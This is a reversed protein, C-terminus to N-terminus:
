YILPFLRKTRRCYSAYADGLASALVREEVNIRYLFVITIPVMVILISLWNGLTLAFGLFALLSGTYSPHRVFRYPGSEILRHDAAIAVNVTFFRGLQIIAIWRLLGVGFVFVGIAAVFHRHPLITTALNGAVFVGAAISLSIVLWMLGLSHEDRSAAGARSRKVVALIIESVLYIM